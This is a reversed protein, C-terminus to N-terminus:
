TTKTSLHFKQNILFISSIFLIFRWINFLVKKLEIEDQEHIQIIFFLSTSIKFLNHKVNGLFVIKDLKWSILISILFYITKRKM